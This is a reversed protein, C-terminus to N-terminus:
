SRGRRSRRGCIDRGTRRRGQRRRAFAALQDLLDGLQAPIQNRRDLDITGAIQEGVHLLLGDGGALIPTAGAGIQGLNKAQVRAGHDLREFVIVQLDGQDLGITREVVQDRDAQGVAGLQRRMLRQDLRRQHRMRWSFSRGRRGMTM